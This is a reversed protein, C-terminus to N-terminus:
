TGKRGRKSPRSASYSGSRPGRWWACTPPTKPTTPPFAPSASTTPQTKPHVLDGLLVLRSEGFRLAETPRLAADALGEAKLIRWLAPFNAHLDGVAIVRM